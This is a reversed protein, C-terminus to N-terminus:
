GEHERDRGAAGGLMRAAIEKLLKVAVMATIGVVDREPNLEVLDAGVISADVGQILALIERTTMGGPEHHSVGPVFAPDLVDLDLSLYVPGEFAPWQGPQWHRMEITEVGFRRAQDRQHPNAARIGVQVLRKVLGEEMIRAFPCAHSFRNGDFEDYLDPHADLHLINLSQYRRAYARVIPLTVAHDGGLALVRAGRDLLAGVAAEITDLAALGTGPEVDGVDVLRADTSLDLGNEAALNTEGSALVQRIRAPALAPGVMFSSQEDYPVGLIAISGSDVQGTPVQRIM